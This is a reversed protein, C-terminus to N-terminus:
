IKYTGLIKNLTSYFDSSFDIIYRDLESYTPIHLYKLITSYVDHVQVM